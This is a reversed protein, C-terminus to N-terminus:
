GPEVRRGVRSSSCAKDWTESVAIKNKVSGKPESRLNRHVLVNGSADLICVYMTKAHLDIGCYYRHQGNYFRM